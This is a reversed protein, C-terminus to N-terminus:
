GNEGGPVFCLALNSCRFLSHRGERIYNWSEAYDDAAKIVPSNIFELFGELNNMYKKAFSFAKMLKDKRNLNITGYLVHDLNCSMYYVRYPIKWLECTAQLKDLCGRKQRNRKSITDPSATRINEETYVPNLAQHDEIINSDDIYAGDTDVIHIIQVINKKPIGYLSMYKEIREGIIRLITSRDSLPSIKTTIDGGEVHIYLNRDNFYNSLVGELAQKDSIGEVFVFVTRKSM